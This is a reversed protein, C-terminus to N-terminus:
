QEDLPRLERLSCPLRVFRLLLLLLQLFLQLQPQLPSRPLLRIESSQDVGVFSSRGSVLPPQVLLGVTTFMQSRKVLTCIRRKFLGTKTNFYLYM